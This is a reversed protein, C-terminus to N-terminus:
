HIVKTYLHDVLLKKPNIYRIAMSKRRLENRPPIVPM